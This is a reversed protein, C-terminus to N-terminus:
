EVCIAEDPGTGCVGDICRLGLECDTNLESEFFRAECPEGEAILARCVGEEQDDDRDCFTTLLPECVERCPEGVEPLEVCTNSDPDCDLGFLPSCQVNDEGEPDCAAGLETAVSKCVSGGNEEVCTMSQIVNAACEGACAEGLTPFEGCLGDVCGGSACDRDSICSLGNALPEQCTPNSAGICTLGSACDDDFVCLEGAEALPQCTARDDGLECRLGEACDQEGCDESLVPLAQCEGLGGDDATCFLGPACGGRADCCAGEELTGVIVEDTACAELDSFVELDGCEVRGLDDFCRTAAVDDVLFLGEPAEPALGLDFLSTFLERCQNEDVFVQGLTPECRDAYDCLADLTRNLFEDPSASGPNGGGPADEGDAGGPSSGSGGTASNPGDSDSSDGCAVCLGAAVLVTWWRM